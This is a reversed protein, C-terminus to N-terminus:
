VKNAKEQRNQKSGSKSIKNLKRQAAYFIEASILPKHTGKFLRGSFKIEGLYTRNSLIKKIGNTSLGYNRALSNLSYNKSVFTTFISHVKSAYEDPALKGNLVKYGLPPRTVPRGTKAVREMGQKRASLNEHYRFTELIRWDIKEELYNEFAHKEQPAYFFCIKCLKKGFLTKEKPENYGCKACAM